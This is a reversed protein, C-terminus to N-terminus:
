IGRLALLFKDSSDQIDDKVAKLDDVTWLVKIGTGCSHASAQCVSSIDETVGNAARSVLQLSDSMQSTTAAQEEVAAAIASVVGDAELM